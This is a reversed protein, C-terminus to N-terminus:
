RVISMVIQDITNLIIKRKKGINRRKADKRM